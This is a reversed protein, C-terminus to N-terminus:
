WGRGTGWNRIGGGLGRSPNFVGGQRAQMFRAADAESRRKAADRSRDDNKQSYGQGQVMKHVHVIVQAVDNSEYGRQEGKKSNWVKGTEPDRELAELEYLACCQPTMLPPDVIFEGTKDNIEGPAPSLMRVLGSYADTRFRTWDENKLSKTEARMGSRRIQQILQTSNWRDFEVETIQMMRQLKVLVAHVNDYYVECGLPPLIRAVWDIVTVVRETGQEDVITEGHGCAGAFADFNKGADFAIFYNGQLRLSSHFVQIGIYDHGSETFRPYEFQAAQEHDGIVLDRFRVTDHILPSAAMPPNAGFDREAGVPDKAYMAAFNERPEYPNFEWTAYKYALMGPVKGGEAERWLRMSKDNKHRPSSVSCMLGLWAERGNARARSRVTQLSNDTARYIEDASMASEGGKMYAIEDLGNFIRTRGRLGSSNSNLSNIILAGLDPHENKIVRDTESYEWREMGPPTTQHKEEEKVWATYRKFWPSNARYARYKAWITDKGQVENSALFTMEWPDKIVLGLYAHLGGPFSHAITLVRHEVYSGILAATVSKGSNHVLCGNAVFSPDDDVQLDICELKGLPAVSEVSFYVWGPELYQDVRHKADGELYPRVWELSARTTRRQGQYRAARVRSEYMKADLVSTLHNTQDVVWDASGLPAEEYFRNSDARLAVEQKRTLRFGVQEAFVRVFADKIRVKYCTSGTLGHGRFGRVPQAYISSVVGFNLLMLQVEQALRKSTTDYSVRVRGETSVTACGAGDFLGQLYAVQADSKARRVAEPTRKQQATWEQLGQARVWDVFSRRSLEVSIGSGGVTVDAPVSKLANKFLTRAEEDGHSFRARYSQMVDGNAVLAGLVYAEDSSLEGSGFLNAGVRVMLTDGPKLDEARVWERRLDGRVVRFRHDMSADIEQGLTTRVRVCDKFVTDLHPEARRTHAREPLVRFAEYDRLEDLTRLGEDTHVMTDLSLCRQGCVLHLANVQDLLGDEELESRKSQCRPCTDENNDPSWELLVERRLEEPTRAMADATTRNCVPCRLQFVDRVIQYSRKYQFLSPSDAYAPDVCWRVANPAPKCLAKREDDRPDPGTPRGECAAKLDAFLDFQFTNTTSRLM